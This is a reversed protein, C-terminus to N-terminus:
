RPAPTAAAQNSQCSEDSNAATPRVVQYYTAGNAATGDLWTAYTSATVLFDGLAPFSATTVPGAVDWVGDNNLDWQWSVIHRAADQHFSDAGDLTVVQGTVAPNPTAKAVAVPAGSEFVTRDLMMIAWATEFAAQSSDGHGTWQGSPLQDNVLTRAVGNTSDGKAVDAAYWDIPPVGPTSSRLLTIPEAIGDGNSDHLLM